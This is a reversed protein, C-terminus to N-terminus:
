LMTGLMTLVKYELRNEGASGNEEAPPPFLEKNERIINKLTAFSKSWELGVEVEAM